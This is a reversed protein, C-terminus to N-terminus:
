RHVAFSTGSSFFRLYPSLSLASLSGLRVKMVSKEWAICSNLQSLCLSLQSTTHTRLVAQRWALLEKPVDVTSDPMCRSEENDSTACSDKGSGSSINQLNLKISKAFPPQFYRREINKELALLRKKFVELEAAKMPGTGKAETDNHM